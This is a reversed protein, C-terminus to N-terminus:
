RLSPRQESTSGIDRVRRGDAVPVHHGRPDGGRGVHRAAGRGAGEAPVLLGPGSTNATSASRTEALHAMFAIVHDKTVLWPEPLGDRAATHDRLQAAAHMYLRITNPAKRDAALQRSWDRVVDRWDDDASM